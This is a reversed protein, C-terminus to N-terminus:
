WTRTNTRGSGCQGGPRPRQRRGPASLAAHGRDTGLDITRYHAGASVPSDVLTTLSAPQFEIMAAPKGSSPCHPETGGPTPFACLSAQYQLTDAQAGQPISSCMSELQSPWNRQHRLRRLLLRRRSPRRRHFRFGSRPVNRGGASGSPVCVHQRQRAELRHDPRRGSSKLGVLNVIPGTPGHEGPIWEPYLLTMPGPKAPMTMQVHFLRRPADTADVLLRVTDQAFLSVSSLALFALAFIWMNESEVILGASPKRTKM